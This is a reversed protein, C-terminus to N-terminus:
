RMVQIPCLRDMYPDLHWIHFVKVVINRIHCDIWILIDGLRPLHVHFLLKYVFHRVSLNIMSFNMQSYDQDKLSLGSKGVIRKLKPLRNIGPQWPQGHRKGPKITKSPIFTDLRDLYPYRWFSALARSIAVQLCFTPCFSKM